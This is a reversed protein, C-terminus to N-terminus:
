CGDPGCTKDDNSFNDVNGSHIKKLVMEMNEKSLAGPVIYKDDFVFYPVGDIPIQHAEYEDQRVEDLYEDSDLVRLVDGEKLGADLSISLLNGRDAININDIFVAKFLCESLREFVDYGISQSLKTLRHADLTNAYKSGGFNMKLGLARGMEDISEISKKALDESMGYKKAVLGLTSADSKIPAKPSLEFSRMEVFIEDELGLSKIAKKLATEGIYCYPCAYDSWYYVKM